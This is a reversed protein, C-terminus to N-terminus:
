SSYIKCAPVGPLTQTRSSKRFVDAIAKEFDEASIAIVLEYKNTELMTKSKLM